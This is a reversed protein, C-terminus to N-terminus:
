RQPWTGGPMSREFLSWLSGLALGVGGCRVMRSKSKTAAFVGGAGVAIPLVASRAGRGVIYGAMTGAAAMAGGTGVDHAARAAERRLDKATLELAM